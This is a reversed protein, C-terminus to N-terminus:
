RLKWLVKRHLTVVLFSYFLSALMMGALVLTTVLFPSSFLQVTEKEKDIFDEKSMGQLKIPNQKKLEEFDINEPNTIGQLELRNSAFDPDIGSFYILLFGAVIITYISGGKMSEKLDELFLTNESKSRGAKFYHLTLFIVLLLFLLNIMATANFLKVSYGLNFIVLKIVIWSLGFILAIKKTKDM